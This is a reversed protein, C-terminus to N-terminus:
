LRALPCFGSLDFYGYVEFFTRVVRSPLEERVTRAKM